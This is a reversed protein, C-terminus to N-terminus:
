KSYVREEEVKYTITKGNVKIYITKDKKYYKAIRVPTYEKGSKVQEWADDDDYENLVYFELVESDDLCEFKNKDNDIYYDYFFGHIPVRSYIRGCEECYWFDRIPYDTKLDIYWKKRLEWEDRDYVYYVCKNPSISDNM